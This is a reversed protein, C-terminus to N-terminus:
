GLCQFVPQYWEAVVRHNAHTGNQIRGGTGCGNVGPRFKTTDGTVTGATISVVRLSPLTEIGPAKVGVSIMVAQDAPASTTM